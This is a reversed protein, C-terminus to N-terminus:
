VRSSEFQASSSNIALKMTAGATKKGLIITKSGIADFFSSLPKVVAEPAGAMIMLTGNKAAQTAGSGPADIITFSGALVQLESIFSPSVTSMESYTQAGNGVLLGCPGLYVDRSAADGSLMTIVVDCLTSLAQSTACSGCGSELAFAESIDQNRNWVNVQLGAAVLNRAMPQGMRGLGALGVRM